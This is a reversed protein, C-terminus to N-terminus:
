TEASRNAHAFWDVGQSPCQAANGQTPDADLVADIYAEMENWMMEDVVNSCAACSMRESSVTECLDGDQKNEARAFPCTSNWATVPCICTLDFVGDYEVEFCPAGVCNACVANHCVLGGSEPNSNEDDFYTDTVSNWSTAAIKGGWGSGGESSGTAVDAWLSGDESAACLKDATENRVSGFDAIERLGTQFVTSTALVFSSWGLTFQAPNGADSDMSLCGCNATLKDSNLTCVANACLASKITCYFYAEDAASLYELVEDHTLRDANGAERDLESIVRPSSARARASCLIGIALVCALAASGLRERPKRRAPLLPAIEEM